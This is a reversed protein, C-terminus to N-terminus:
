SGIEPDHTRAGCHTYLNSKFFKSVPTNLSFVACKWSGWLGWFGKASLGRGAVLLFGALVLSGLELTSRTGHRRGEQGLVGERSVQM